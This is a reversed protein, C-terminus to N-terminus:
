QMLTGAWKQNGSAPGIPSQTNLTLTGGAATAAPYQGNSTGGGNGLTSMQCGAGTVGQFLWQDGQSSHAISGGISMRYSCGGGPDYIYLGPSDSTETFTGSYTFPAIAVKAEEERGAVVPDPGFDLMWYQTVANNTGNGNGNNSNSGPLPCGTALLVFMAIASGRLGAVVKCRGKSQM